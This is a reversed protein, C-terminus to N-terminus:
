PSRSDSLMYSTLSRWEEASQTEVGCLELQTLAYREGSSNLHKSLFKRAYPLWAEGFSGSSHHVVMLDNCVALSFNSRAASYTFDLDYLHWGDFTAEDFGIKEVVERRAAFFVGDLAQMPTAWAGRMVFNTVYIHAGRAPAGIQGFVHPWGADTWVAGCLRDTGAVGIVDFQALRNIVKAAFDPSVIEIDDHSFVLIEGKAQRIGRNYGESLSRADHIGIIEHPIDRLLTSYNTHVREFKEPTISCVIVSVPLADRALQECVPEGPDLRVQALAAMTRARQLLPYSPQREICAELSRLAGTNNGLGLRAVGQQFHPEPLTQDLELAATAYREIRAPDADRWALELERFPNM